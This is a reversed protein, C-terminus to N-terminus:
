DTCFLTYLIETPQSSILFWFIALRFDAWYDINVSTLDTDSYLSNLVTLFKSDNLNLPKNPFRSFSILHPHCLTKHSFSLETIPESLASNIYWSSRRLWFPRVAGHSRLILTPFLSARHSSLERVKQILIPLLKFKSSSIKTLPSSNHCGSKRTRIEVPYIHGNQETLASFQSIPFRSPDKSSSLLWNSSLSM